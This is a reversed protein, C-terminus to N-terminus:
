RCPATRDFFAADLDPWNGAWRAGRDVYCWSGRSNTGEGYSDASPEWWKLALDDTMWRHGPGFRVAAQYYPPGGSSPNAFRTQLLARDFTSPTLNPGAMQIGSALVLLRRYMPEVIQIDNITPTFNPKSERAAWYFPRDAHILLKNRSAVGFIHASQDQPTLSSYGSVQEQQELGVHIWEPQYGARSAASMMGLEEAPSALSIVSNIGDSRWSAIMANVEPPPQASLFSTPYEDVRPSEGCLRLGDLLPQPSPNGSSRKPVAVAFKRMGLAEASGAHRAIRKVISACMFSATEHQLWDLTPQYSWQLPALRELVDATLDTGGGDIGIIGRRTAESFLVITSSALSPAIVAFAKVEEDAREAIFRQANPDNSAGGPTSSSGNRAVVVVRLRRGYLEYRRNFHEVIPGLSTALSSGDGCDFACAVAVRIEDRTIGRWTSGGNNGEWYNVCPPSQPDETQRPPNGVCRRVRAREVIRRDAGSSAQSSGPVECVLGEVCVGAGSGFQSSQRDPADEIQEQAQPAFEAIQPPSPPVFVLAMAAIVLLLAGAIAGYILPISKSQRSHAIQM